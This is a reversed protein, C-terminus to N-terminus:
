HMRDKLRDVLAAFRPDSRVADLDSDQEMWDTDRMGAAASAELAALASDVAGALSYACAVNYLLLPDGKVIPLVRDALVIADDTEGMAAHAQALTLLLDPDEPRTLLQQKLL